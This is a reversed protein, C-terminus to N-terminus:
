LEEDRADDPDPEPPSLLFGEGKCTPCINTGESLVAIRAKALALQAMALTTDLGSVSLGYQFLEFPSGVRIAEPHERLLDVIRETLADANAAYMVASAGVAVEGGGACDPCVNEPEQPGSVSDTLSV